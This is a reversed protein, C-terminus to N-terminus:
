QDGWSCVPDRTWMYQSKSPAFQEGSGGFFAKYEFRMNEGPTGKGQWQVGDLRDMLKGGLWLELFGDKASAKSNLGVVTEMDHWDGLSVSGIVNDDGYTGGNNFSRNTQYTYAVLDIMGKQKSPRWMHAVSFGAENVDGGSVTDDDGGILGFGFKGGLVAEFDDAFKVSQRVRYVSHGSEIKAAAQDHHSGKSTPDFRQMMAGADIKVRDATDHTYIFDKAFMAALSNGNSMDPLYQGAFDATKTTTEDGQMDAKVLGALYLATDSEGKLRDLLATRDIM